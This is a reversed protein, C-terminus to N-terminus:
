PGRGPETRGDHGIAIALAGSLIAFCGMAALGPAYSGTMDKLMGVIVPGVYGGINGLANVLAIGAAATASGLVATPLTWFQPLAAYITIASAALALFGATPADILYGSLGLFIGGLIIPAAVHWKREGTRDSHGGWWYMGGTAILYPIATLLGVQMNTLDGLSKVIQPLWLSLGYLCITM